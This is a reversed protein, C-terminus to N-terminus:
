SKVLFLVGGVTKMPNQDFKTYIIMQGTHETFTNLYLKYLIKNLIVVQVYMQINSQLIRNLITRRVM